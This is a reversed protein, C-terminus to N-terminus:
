ALVREKTGQLLPQEQHVRILDMMVLADSESIFELGLGSGDSHIAMTRLKYHVSQLPSSHIVVDLVLRQLPKIDAYETHLYLGSQSATKIIGRGVLLGSKFINAKLNLDTREGYRHEM